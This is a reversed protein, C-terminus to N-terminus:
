LYNKPKRDVNNEQKFKSVWRILTPKTCGFIKCTKLYGDNSNMYHKIASLKYDISKQKM